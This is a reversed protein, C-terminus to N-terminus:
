SEEAPAARCRNAHIVDTQRDLRDLLAKNQRDHSLREAALEERFSKLADRFLVFLVAATLFGGGAQVLASTLPDM